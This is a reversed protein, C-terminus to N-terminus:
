EQPLAHQWMKELNYIHRVVERFLHVIVDFTDLLVWDGQEMGELASDHWGGAHLRDVLKDALAVVHRNGRGTAIVMYDALTTKGALDIVIIDEAKDEDLSAVIMDKLTNANSISTEDSTPIPM